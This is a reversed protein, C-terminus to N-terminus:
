KINGVWKIRRINEKDIFSCITLNPHSYPIIEDKHEIKSPRHWADREGDLVRIDKMGMNYLKKEATLM